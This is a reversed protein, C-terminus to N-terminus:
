NIFSVKVFSVIPAIRKMKKQPEDTPLKITPNLEQLFIKLFIKTEYRIYIYIHTHTHTHTHAIHTNIYIFYVQM